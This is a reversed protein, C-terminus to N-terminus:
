KILNWIEWCNKYLVTRYIYILNKLSIPRRGEGILDKIRHHINFVYRESNIWRNWICNLVYFKRIATTDSIWLNGHWVRANHHYQIQRRISFIRPKKTIALCGCNWKVQIRHLCRKIISGIIVYIINSKYSKTILASGSNSLRRWNLINDLEILFRRRRWCSSRIM